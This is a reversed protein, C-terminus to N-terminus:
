YVSYFCVVEVTISTLNPSFPSIAPHYWVMGSVPHKHLCFVLNKLLQKGGSSASKQKKIENVGM